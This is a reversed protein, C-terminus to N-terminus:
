QLSSSGSPSGSPIPSAASVASTPLPREGAGATPATPTAPSGNVLLGLLQGFFDLNCEWVAGAVRMFSAGGLMGVRQAPWRIAVGVAACVEDPHEAALVMFSTSPTLTAGLPGLARMVQAIQVIDMEAVTVTDDVFEPSDPAARVKVPIVRLAPYLDALEAASGTRAKGDKKAM